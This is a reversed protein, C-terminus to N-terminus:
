QTIAAVPIVSNLERSMISLDRVDNQVTSMLEKLIRQQDKLFRLMRAMNKEDPVDMKSVEPKRGMRVTSMLDEIRSTFDAPHSLQKQILQLRRKLTLEESKMPSTEKALLQRLCKLLKQTLVVQQQKLAVIDKKVATEHRSRLEALKNELQDAFAVCSHLGENHKEARMRLEAYSRIASPILNEPDPNHRNAADWLHQPFGQPQFLQPNERYQRCMEPTAKNYVMYQFRCQGSMPLIKGYAAALHQLKMLPNEGARIGTQAGPWQVQPQGPAGGMGGLGGAGLLGFGGGTGFSSGGLGATGGMGGTGFGGATGFGAGTAGGLGFGTAGTGGLCSTGFGSGGTLGGAGGTSGFTFGTGGTCTAGTGFGTAGTGFGTAGTAGTGLGTAAGTGFGTAGTGFGTTGTGFGTAGTTGTLGFGTGGTAGTGFGTTGTQGFGGTTGLGGTTQGFSFGTSGAGPNAGGGFSFAM